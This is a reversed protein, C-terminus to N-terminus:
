GDFVGMSALIGGIVAYALVLLVIIAGVKFMVSGQGVGNPDVEPRDLLSRSPPRSEGSNPGASASDHLYDSEHEISPPQQAPVASPRVPASSSSQGRPEAAIDGIGPVADRIAAALAEPSQYRQDPSKNLCRGVLRELAVPVEPRVAGLRPPRTDIHHRMVDFASDAEFPAKGTLMKYMVVGLSYVDSRTDVTNGQAQEPSMYDPTGMVSGTRTMATLSEARAIGFDTVKVTGDQTILLNEPKIDRHVIGQELAAQLGLATQLCIDAARRISLRGRVEVLRAVSIPVYEMSIFHYSGDQGVELIRAINRHKVSAAM